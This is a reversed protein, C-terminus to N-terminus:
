RRTPWSARCMTPSSVYLGGDSRPASCLRSLRGLRETSPSASTRHGALGAHRRGGDLPADREVHRASLLGREALLTVAGHRIRQRDIGAPLELALM